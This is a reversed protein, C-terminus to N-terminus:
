ASLGPGCFSDGQAHVDTCLLNKNETAYQATFERAPEKGDGEGPQQYGSNGAGEEQRGADRHVCARVAQARVKYVEQGGGPSLGLTDDQRLDVRHELQLEEAQPLERVKEISDSKAQADAHTAGQQIGLFCEGGVPLHAGDGM